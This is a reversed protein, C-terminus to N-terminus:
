PEADMDNRCLVWNKSTLVLHSGLGKVGAEVTMVLLSAKFVRTEVIRM